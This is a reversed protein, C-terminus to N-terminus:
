YMKLEKTSLGSIKDNELHLKIAKEKLEDDIMQTWSREANGEIGQERMEEDFKKGISVHFSMLDFRDDITLPNKGSCQLFDFENSSKRSLQM